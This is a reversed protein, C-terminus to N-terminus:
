HFCTFAGAQLLEGLMAAVDIDPENALALAAAEAIDAGARCADLFCCTGYGIQRWLVSGQPRTLLAGEGRWETQEMPATDDRRSADWIAYCPHQASWHWRAAAHLTLRVNRGATLAAHLGAANLLPDDAALHSESWCRDLAAVDALYPLDAAAQVGALFAPLHQGYTILCADDPMHQRAYALAASHFWAQGVLRRVAPYNAALADTVGKFITNRYVAFAPQALLAAVQPDASHGQHIADMFASYYDSRSM